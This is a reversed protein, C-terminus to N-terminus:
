PGFADLDVRFIEFPIELPLMLVFNVVESKIVYLGSEAVTATSLGSIQPVNVVQGASFDENPRVRSVSSGSVAYLDGALMALGDPSPLTDGSLAVTAITDGDPLSVRFLTPLAFKAVILASGDATIDIGNLGLSLGTIDTFRPDTAFIAGTGTAADLRYINPNAPDTVYAIGASDLVLDNCAGNAFIAGLFFEMTLEATNLDFLWVRSDGGDVQQACAWLLRREADVKTGGVLARNDAPHFVSERGEADIRVIGGGQLSTAYFMREKPDFAVGEPISDPSSLTYRESLPVLPAATENSNSTDSCAATVAMATAAACAILFTNTRM